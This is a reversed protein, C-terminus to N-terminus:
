VELKINSYKVKRLAKKRKAIEEPAAGKNKLHQNYIEEASRVNLNSRVGSTATPYAPFTVPGIDIIEEFETITRIPIDGSDDWEDGDEAVSFIFSSGDIDGRAINKKLDNAWQTDPPDAEYRVGIEDEYINLTGAKKRGLVYNPDHNFLSRIDSNKIANDAAGPAIKEKFLGMIPESLENYRIGYGAIKEKDGDERLEMQTNIVRLEKNPLQIKDM